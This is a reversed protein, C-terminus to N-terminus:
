HNTIKLEVRRNAARESETKNRNIPNADGFGIAKIRKAKVGSMQLYENVADARSQSLKIHNKPNGDNSTYGEILVNLGPNRKLIKAVDDLVLKSKESLTISRYKFQVRKAYNEMRSKLNKDVEPCGENEKTGKENPCKDVEDDVGDKDSDVAPCGNNKVTGAIDPCNDNKDAVGDGDKDPCGKTQATGKERPCEDENDPVGDKDRDRSKVDRHKENSLFLGVTLGAVQNRFTGSNSNTKYFQSLGKSFNANVFLRGFEFGAFANLGVDVNNYKGQSRPIKLSTNETENVSGNSYYTNLAERGSFLFSVYPGGGIVFKTKTGLGKKYVLNLPIEMYNVFQRGKVSSIASTATDFESSFKRGKNSYLMGTRFYLETSKFFPIEAILGLHLGPRSSYKHNLTDWEPSSNGPVSSFQPGGAIATRLQAQGNIVLIFCCFLLVTVPKKM